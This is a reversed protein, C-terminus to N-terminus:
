CLNDLLEAFLTDTNVMKRGVSRRDYELYEQVLSDWGEDDFLKLVNTEIVNKVKENLGCEEIFVIVDDWEVVSPEVSWARCLFLYINMCINCCEIHMSDKIRSEVLSKNKATMFLHDKYEETVRHLESWLGSKENDLIEYPIHLQNSYTYEEVALVINYNIVGAKSYNYQDLLFYPLRVMDLFQSDNVGAEQLLWDFFQKEINLMASPEGTAMQLVEILDKVLIKIYLDVVHVDLTAEWALIRDKLEEITVAYQSLGHKCFEQFLKDEEDDFAVITSAKVLAAVVSHQGLKLFDVLIQAYETNSVCWTPMYKDYETTKAGKLERLLAVLKNCEEESGTFRFTAGSINPIVLVEKDCLMRELDIESYEFRIWKKSLIHEDPMHVRIKEVAEANKVQSCLLQVSEDSFAHVYMAQTTFYISKDGFKGLYAGPSIGLEKRALERYGESDRVIEYKKMLDNLYSWDEMSFANKEEEYPKEVADDFQLYFVDELEEYSSAVYQSYFGEEGRLRYINEIQNKLEKITKNGFDFEEIFEEYLELSDFVCHKLFIYEMCCALIKKKQKNGMNVLTATPNEM